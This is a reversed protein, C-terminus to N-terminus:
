AVAVFRDGAAEDSGRLGRTAVVTAERERLWDERWVRGAEGFAEGLREVVEALPRLLCVPSTAFGDPRCVWRVAYATTRAMDDGVEEMTTALGVLDAWSAVEITTSTM